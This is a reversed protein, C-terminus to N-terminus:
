QSSSNYEGGKNSDNESVESTPDQLIDNIKKQNIERLNCLEDINKIRTKWTSEHYDM